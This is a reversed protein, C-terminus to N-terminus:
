YAFTKNLIAITTTQVSPAGYFSKSAIIADLSFKVGLGLEGDQAKSAGTIKPSQRDSHKPKFPIVEATKQGSTDEDLLYFFWM